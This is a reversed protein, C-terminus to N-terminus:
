QIPEVLHSRNAPAAYPEPWYEVIRAIRGDRVTFFSIARDRRSGDTVTVDTVAEGEGAVLHHITFEWRGQAPFESNVSAFRERGRIRENSQPWDLIFDDALVAGVARFDNTGMLRWYERVIEATNM